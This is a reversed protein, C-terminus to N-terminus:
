ENKILVYNLFGLNLMPSMAIMRVPTKVIHYIKYVFITAIPLRFRSNYKEGSKM